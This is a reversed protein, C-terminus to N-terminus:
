HGPLFVERGVATSRVESAETPFREYRNTLWSPLQRTYGPDLPNGTAGGPLIAYSEIGEHGLLFYTRAGAALLFTFGGDDASRLGHGAVDLSEFGGARALGPLAAELDEFGGAPPVNFPGGLPHPLTIRHLRGWRYDSQETSFGFARAFAPGALLDLTESLAELVVVSRRDHPDTVEPVAFFDVGSRSPLGAGSRRLLEILAVHAQRDTPLSGGLGLGALTEDVVRVLLRGRFVSFITTAVSEDVQGANPAPLLEPDDGADYGADIGTPSTFRWSTLRDVAEAVRPDAALTALAPPAGPAQSRSWADALFPVLIEADPLQSSAQLAEVEAAGIRGGSGVIGEILRRVKAARLSVHSRNLYYVGGGPRMENLPDNDLTNGVPDNNASILLDGPPNLVQPMEDFPLIDFPLSRFPEYRRHRLWENRLAGSGDRILFPPAGDVRELEQLDERLPLEGTTFYALTGQRDVYGMNFLFGDAYRLAREFDRVRRTRHLRFFSELDQNPSWGTYQISLGPAVGDAPAGVVMLPGFNRRPVLVVEGGEAPPLSVNELNDSIGDGLVNARYSQALTVVPERRGQYLTHTPRGSLPDVIVQEAYTDTLDLANNTAGWCAFGNCGSVVAPIGAFTSGSLDLDLRRREVVLQAPYVTPPASLFQHPDNALIPQGDATLSGGFLWWNSGLGRGAGEFLPALAPLAAMRDRLGRALEMVEPRPIAGRYGALAGEGDATAATSGTAGPVTVEPEIPALRFVDEFFLAAGDFGGESGAAVFAGLAVTRDIDSLDLWSGASFGKLLLLADSAEWPRLTAGTLELLGYEISPPHSELYANVGDAYADLIRRGDTSYMRLSREANSRFRFQRFQADSALAGPGVLEALTGEFLHRFFDMQFFRDEAHLYGLLLFADEESSAFVHPFGQEDRLVEAPGRLGQLRAPHSWAAAAGFCLVLTLAGCVRFRLGM